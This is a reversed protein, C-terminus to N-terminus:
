EMEHMVFIIFIKSKQREYFEFNVHELLQLM